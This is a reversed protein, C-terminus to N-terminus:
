SAGGSRISRVSPGRPAPPAKRTRQNLLNWRLALIESVRNVGLKAGDPGLRFLEGPAFTQKDIM